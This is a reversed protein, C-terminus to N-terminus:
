GYQPYPSATSDSCLACQLINSSSVVMGAVNTPRLQGPEPLPENDPWFIVLPGLPDSSVNQVHGGESFARGSPTLIHQQVVSALPPQPSRQLPETAHRQPMPPRQPLHSPLVQHRPATTPKFPASATPLLHAHVHEPTLPFMPSPAGSTSCSSSGSGNVNLQSFNALLQPMGAACSPNQFRPSPVHPPPYMTPPASRPITCTRCSSNRRYPLFCHHARARRAPSDPNIHVFIPLM